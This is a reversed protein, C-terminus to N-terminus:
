SIALQCLAGKKHGDLGEKIYRDHIRDSLRGLCSLNPFGPGQQMAAMMPLYLSLSSQMGEVALSANIKESIRAQSLESLAAQRLVEKKAGEDLLSNLYFAQSFGTALLLYDYEQNVTADGQLIAVHLKEDFFDPAASVEGTIYSVNGATNLVNMAQQSMVGVDTRRIFARKMDFSLAQWQHRDPDSYYRNESYSEGRSFATGHPCIIDIELDPHKLKILSLAMSAANEGAGVIAIRVREKKEIREFCQWYNKTSFIGRKEDCLNSDKPLGPGTLMVGHFNLMLPIEAEGFRVQWCDQYVSLGSVTEHHFHINSKVLDYVWLLYRTWLKHTPAPNGRDIWDAYQDDAVLFASYSYRQMRTNIKESLLLDATKTAYPFGVDKFPSTGLELHGNTYGHDGCWHAAVKNKEFIHIEPVLFGLESLVQNKAAVALAKPGAGIIAIREKTRM